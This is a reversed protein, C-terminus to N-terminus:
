GNFRHDNWAQDSFQGFFAFWSYISISAILCSTWLFFLIRHIGFFHANPNSSLLANPVLCTTLLAISFLVMLLNMPKRLPWYALRRFITFDNGWKHVLYFRNKGVPVFLLPDADADCLDFAEPPALIKFDTLEHGLGDELQKIGLVTERPYTNKFYKADLFRLRYRIAVQKITERDFVRGPDLRGENIYKSGSALELRTRVGAERKAEQLLIDHAEVLLEDALQRDKEEQLEEILDVKKLM